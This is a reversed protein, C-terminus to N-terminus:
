VSGRMPTVTYFSPDSLDECVGFIARDLADEIEAGSLGPLKGSVERPLRRLRDSATRTLAECVSLHQDINILRSREKETQLEHRCALAIEKRLKAEAMDPTLAKPPRGKRGTLNAARRWAQYEDLDLLSEANVGKRTCPAGLGVHKRVTFHSQRTLKAVQRITLTRNPTEPTADM